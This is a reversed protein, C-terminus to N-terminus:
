PTGTIKQYIFETLLEIEELGKTILSHDGPTLVDVLPLSIQKHDVTNKCRYDRLASLIRDYLEDGDTWDDQM